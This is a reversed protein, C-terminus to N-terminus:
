LWSFINNACELGSLVSNAAPKDSNTLIAKCAEAFLAQGNGSHEDLRRKAYDEASHNHIMFAWDSSQFLMLEREMQNIYRTLLKYSKRSADMRERINKLHLIM